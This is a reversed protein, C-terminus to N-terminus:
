FPNLSLHVSKDHLLSCAMQAGPVRDSPHETVMRVTCGASQLHALAHPVAGGVVGLSVVDVHGGRSCDVANLEDAIPNNTAPSFYASVNHGVDTWTRFLTPSKGDRM